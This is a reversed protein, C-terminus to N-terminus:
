SAFARPILGSAAALWKAKDVDSTFLRGTSPDELARLRYFQYVKKPKKPNTNVAIMSGIQLGQDSKVGHLRIIRVEHIELIGSPKAYHFIANFDLNEAIVDGLPEWDDVPSSALLKQNGFNAGAGTILNPKVTRSKAKILFKFSVMGIVFVFLIFVNHNGTIIGHIM